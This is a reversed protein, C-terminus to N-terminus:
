VAAGKWSRRKKVSKQVSSVRNGWKDEKYGRQVSQTSFVTTLLVEIKAHNDAATPVHKGLRQRSVIKKESGNALLPQKESVVTRARLLYQV